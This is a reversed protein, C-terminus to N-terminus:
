ELRASLRVMVFVGVTMWLTVYVHGSHDNRENGKHRRKGHCHMRQFMLEDRQRSFHGKMEKVDFFQEGYSSM